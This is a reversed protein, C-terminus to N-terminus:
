ISLFGFGYETKKVEVECSGGKIGITKSEESKHDNKCKTSRHCKRNVSKQPPRVFLILASQFSQSSVREDRSLFLNVLDSFNGYTCIADKRIDNALNGSELTVLRGVVSCVMVPQLSSTSPM